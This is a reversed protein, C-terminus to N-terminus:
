TVSTFKARKRELHISSCRYMMSGIADITKPNSFEILSTGKKPQIGGRLVLIGQETLFQALGSVFPQGCTFSLKCKQYPGYTKDRVTHFRKYISLCGDADFVGRIYAWSLIHDSFAIFPENGSKRGCPMGASILDNCIQTNNVSLRWKAQETPHGLSSVVLRVADSDGLCTAIRQLHPADVDAVQLSLRKSTKRDTIHGDATLFGLLYAQEDNTIDHFYHTNFTRVVSKLRGAISPQRRPLGYLEMYSVVTNRGVGYFRAIDVTSWQEIIYLQELVDRTLVHALKRAIGDRALQGQINDAGVKLQKM